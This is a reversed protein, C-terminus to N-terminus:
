GNKNEENTSINREWILPLRALYLPCDEIM